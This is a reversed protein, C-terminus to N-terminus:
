SPVPTCFFAAACVRVFFALGIVFYRDRRVAIIKLDKGVSKTKVQAAAPVVLRVPGTGSLLKKRCSSAPPAPQGVHVAVHDLGHQGLRFAATTSHAEPDPTGQAIVVQWKADVCRAM